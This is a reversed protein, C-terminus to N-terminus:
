VIAARDNRRNGARRSHEPAALTLRNATIIFRFDRRFYVSRFEDGSARFIIFRANNNCIHKRHSQANSFRNKWNGFRACAHYESRSILATSGYVFDRRGDRVLHVSDSNTPNTFAYNIKGCIFM